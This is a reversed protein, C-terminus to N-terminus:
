QPVEESKEVFRTDNSFGPRIRIVLSRVQQFLYTSPTEDLIRSITNGQIIGYEGVPPYSSFPERLLGNHLGIISVHLPGHASYCAFRGTVPDDWWCAAAKCDCFRAVGAKNAPVVITGCCEAFLMKM